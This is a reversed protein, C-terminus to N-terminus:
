EWTYKRRFYGSDTRVRTLAPAPLTTLWTASALLDLKMSAALLSGKRVTLNATCSHKILDRQHRKHLLNKRSFCNLRRYHSHAVGFVTPLGNRLRESM